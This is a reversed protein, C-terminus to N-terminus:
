VMLPVPHANLKYM